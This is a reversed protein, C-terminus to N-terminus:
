SLVYRFFWFRSFHLVGMKDFATNNTHIDTIITCRKGNNVNSTIDNGLIMKRGIGIRIQVTENGLQRLLDQHQSLSIATVLRNTADANTTGTGTDHRATNLISDVQRPFTQHGQFGHQAVSQTDSNGHTIIGVCGTQTLM